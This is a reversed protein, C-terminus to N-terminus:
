RGFGRRISTSFLPKREPLIRLKVNQLVIRTHPARLALGIKLLRKTKYAVAEETMGVLRLDGSNRFFKALDEPKRPMDIEAHIGVIGNYEGIFVSTTQNLMHSYRFLMKRASRPGVHNTWDGLVGAGFAICVEGLYESHLCVSRMFVGLPIAKYAGYLIEAEALSGIHHTSLIPVRMREDATVVLDLLKEESECQHLGGYEQYM